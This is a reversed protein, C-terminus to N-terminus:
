SFADSSKQITEKPDPLKSENKTSIKKDFRRAMKSVVHHGRLVDLLEQEINQQENSANPPSLVEALKRTLNQVESSETDLIM